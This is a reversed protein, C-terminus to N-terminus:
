LMFIEDITYKLKDIDKRAEEVCDQVFDWFKIIKEEIKLILDENRDFLHVALDM